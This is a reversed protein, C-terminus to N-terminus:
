AHKPATQVCGRKQGMSCYPCVCRMTSPLRPASRTSTTTELSGVSYTVLPQHLKTSGPTPQTWQSSLTSALYTFHDVANLQAGNIHFNPTFLNTFHTPVHGRNRSHQGPWLSFIPDLTQQLSEPTYALIACDGTYQVPRDYIHCTM